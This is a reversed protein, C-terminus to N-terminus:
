VDRGCKPCVNGAPVREDCMQTGPRDARYHWRMPVDHAVPQVSATVSRPPAAVEELLPNGTGVALATAGRETVAGDFLRFVIERQLSRRSGFAWERLRSLEEDSLRLSM